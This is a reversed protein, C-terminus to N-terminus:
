YKYYIISFYALSKQTFCVYRINLQLKGSKMKCAVCYACCNADINLALNGARHDNTIADDLLKLFTHITCFLDQAHTSFDTRMFM